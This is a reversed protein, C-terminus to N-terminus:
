DVPDSGIPIKLSVRSGDVLGADERICVKSILEIISDGHHTRELVVLQCKTTGNLVASFCRVWGYTRQGDSFGDITVGDMGDFQRKAELYVREDLRVNLTGPFPVYGIKSKFQRTYGELGMYYAGEGMGSVLVGELDVHSPSSDICKQLISSLRSVEAFGKPTVKVSISGGSMIREIFRGQELDVLHQSAAQQSRKISRGLSSTTILVYNHRAGASLLYSLTLIHQIKLETM